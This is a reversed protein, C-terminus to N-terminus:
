DSDVESYSVFGRSRYHRRVAAVLLAAALLRTQDRPQPAMLQVESQQDLLSHASDEGADGPVLLLVEVEGVGDRAM